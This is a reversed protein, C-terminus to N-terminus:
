PSSAWRSWVKQLSALICAMRLVEKVQNPVGLGVTKKEKRRGQSEDEGDKKKPVKGMRLSKKLKKWSPLPKTGLDAPMEEGPRHRLVWDGKVFRQKAHAARM